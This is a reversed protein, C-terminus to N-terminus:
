LTLNLFSAGQNTSYEYMTDNDPGSGWNVQQAEIDSSCSGGASMLVWRYERDREVASGAADQYTMPVWVTSAYFSSLGNTPLIGYALVRGSAIDM